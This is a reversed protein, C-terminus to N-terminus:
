SELENRMQQYEERTIEGQAYRRDLTERPTEASGLTKHSGGCMPRGDMGGRMLLVMFVVMLVLFILPFIWGSPMWGWGGNMWM